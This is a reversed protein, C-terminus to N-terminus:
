TAGSITVPFVFGTSGSTGRHGVVGGITLVNNSVNISHGGDEITVPGSM